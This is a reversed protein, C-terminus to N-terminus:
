ETPALLSGALMVTMSEMLTYMLVLSTKPQGSSASSKGSDEDELVPLEALAKSPKFVASVAPEVMIAMGRVAM